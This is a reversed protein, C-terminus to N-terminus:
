VKLEADSPRVYIAQLADPHVLQQERFRMFALKAVYIALNTVAPALRAEQTASNELLAKNAIAGEGCWLVSELSSYKELLKSPSIHTAKDLETVLGEKTVSFLQAFVEGRGAPLLAVSRPSPGGALAVAQLTPVGATQRDLTAALAKVTAIGIRLGTFSGPGTAVAFLDVAALDVQAESLVRDIDSLLTNSHSVRSDGALAAIVEDGRSLAVSGALTATEVSLIQPILPKSTSRM